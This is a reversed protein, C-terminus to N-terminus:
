VYPYVCMLVIVLNLLFRSFCALVVYANVLAIFAWDIMKSVLLGEVIASSAINSINVDSYSNPSYAFFVAILM